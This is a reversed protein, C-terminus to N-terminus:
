CDRLVNVKCVQGGFLKTRLGQAVIKATGLLLNGELFKFSYHSRKKLSAGGARLHPSSGQLLTLWGADM